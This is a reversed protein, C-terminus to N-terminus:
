ETLRAELEAKEKEYGPKGLLAFMNKKYAEVGPQDFPNVGLLYGSIGCAKEFFYVLYGFSYPTMNPVTVILNPVQGDTHALMTGQFAKKNVFDMTKGALFNLGDLDNPDNEITIHEAVNEVQIITEFINRSGEQIFQGMSHLDTSFDVSAPYIGKYDKGESEGFLQKWWESVYHLSPEYNVLIEIAKGKRYLANRVAAYQYSLNEAVNPNSFEKSADAAGQMMEEINIGATAIPLLGVPTLVSYRGGVDDPIIFSEYGEENALKKLAGQEKDTTAYIRKRAEEKGYKKELDARLIRFAVAPETTTGSKSIVNVSYDKGEVLDLLHTLYTSSINNGAFYIEPTKRKDKPLMNYFSHSLAEIAARAGLYSGGIGIVILVESDSQIKSAAKQIRAFEEKDYQTPLDIWGLYDSGTGTGNHLQEHALKIPEALYDIEHQNIFSLAKSYDFNINKSM